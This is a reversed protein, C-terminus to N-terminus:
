FTPRNCHVKNRKSTSKRQKKVVPSLVVPPPTVSKVDVDMGTDMDIDGVDGNSLMSHNSPSMILDDLGHLNRDSMHGAHGGSLDLDSSLSSPNTYKDYAFFIGGVIVSGILFARIYDYIEVTNEEENRNSIYIYIISALGAIPGAVYYKSLINKFNM